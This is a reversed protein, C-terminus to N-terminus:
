MKKGVLEPLLRFMDGGRIYRERGRDLRALVVPIVFARALHTDSGRGTFPPRHSPYLV